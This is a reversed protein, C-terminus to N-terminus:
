KCRHNTLEYSRHGDFLLARNQRKLVILREQGSDGQLVLQDNEVFWSGFQEEKTRSMGGAITREEYIQFRGNSCLWLERKDDYAGDRKLYVIHSGELRKQLNSLSTNLRKTPTFSLTQVINMTIAKITTENKADYTARVMVARNQPGLVISVLLSKKSYSENFVFRRQFIHNNIKIIRDTPFIKVSKKLYHTRNLYRGAANLDLEKARIVITDNTETSTLLLGEGERAIAEWGKPLGMSVGLQTATLKLPGVYHKNSELNVAFLASTLLLIGLIISKM